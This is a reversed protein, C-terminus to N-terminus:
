SVIKNSVPDSENLPLLIKLKPRRSVVPYYAAPGPNDPERSEGFKKGISYKPATTRGQNTLNTLNYGPGPSETEDEVRLRQRLSYAPVNGINPLRNVRGVTTKTGYAAPGPGSDTTAFEFVKQDMKETCKNM